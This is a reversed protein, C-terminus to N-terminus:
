FIRMSIMQLSNGTDNHFHGELYAYRQIMFLFNSFPNFNNYPLSKLIVKYDCLFLNYLYMREDKMPEDWIHLGAFNQYNCDSLIM